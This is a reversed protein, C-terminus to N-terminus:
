AESGKARTRAEAAHMEAIIGELTFVDSSLQRATLSRIFAGENALNAPGKYQTADGFRSFSVTDQFCYRPEAEAKQGDLVNVGVYIMPKAGPITWDRDAFTLMYYAKGQKLDTPAVMEGELTRTTGRQLLRAAGGRL